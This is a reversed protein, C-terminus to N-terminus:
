IFTIQHYCKYNIIESFFIKYSDNKPLLNIKERPILKRMPNRPLRLNKPNRTVQSKKEAQWLWLSYSIPSRTFVVLKLASKTTSGM